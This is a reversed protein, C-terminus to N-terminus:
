VAPASAVRGTVIWARATLRFPQEGVDLIRQLDAKLAARPEPDLSATYAGAPGVGTELPSWLDEFGLYSASVRADSVRTQALGADNWLQELADPTCYPM